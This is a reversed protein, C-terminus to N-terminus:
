KRNRRPHLAYLKKSPKRRYVIRPFKKSREHIMRVPRPRHPVKPLKPMRIYLRDIKGPIRGTAEILM